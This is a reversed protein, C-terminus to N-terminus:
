GVRTLTWLAGCEECKLWTGDEGYGPLLRRPVVDHRDADDEHLDPCIGETCYGGRRALPVLTSSSEGSAKVRRGITRRPVPGCWTM